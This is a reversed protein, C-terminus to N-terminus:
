KQHSSSAKQQQTLRKRAEGAENNVETTVDYKNDMLRRLVASREESGELLIKRLKLDNKRRNQLGNHLLLKGIYLRVRSLERQM